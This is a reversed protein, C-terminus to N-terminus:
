RRFPVMKSAGVTVMPKNRPPRPRSIVPQTSIPDAIEAPVDEAVPEVVSQKDKDKGPVLVRKRPGDPWGGRRAM